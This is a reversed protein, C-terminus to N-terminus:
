VSKSVTSLFVCFLDGLIKYASFRKCLIIVKKNIVKKAYNEAVKKVSGFNTDSEVIQTGFDFLFYNNKITFILM